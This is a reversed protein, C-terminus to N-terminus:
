SGLAKSERRIRALEQRRAKKIPYQARDYEARKAVVEPTMLCARCMRIGRKLAGAALNGEYPHGNICHTRLVGKLGRRVNELRTVPELHDPNICSRVRCKHDLEMGEPVPGKAIEYAVKHAVKTTNVGHTRDHIGFTGYGGRNLAGTWLICGCEPVPM